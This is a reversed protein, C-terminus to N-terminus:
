AVEGGIPDVRKFDREAIEREADEASTLAFRAGAAKIAAFAQAGAYTTDITM